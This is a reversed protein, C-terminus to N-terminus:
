RRRRSSLFRMFWAVFVPWILLLIVTKPKMEPFPWWKMIDRRQDLQKRRENVTIQEVLGLRKELSNVEQQMNLLAMRLKENVTDTSTSTTREGTHPRSSDIRKPRATIHNTSRLSSHAPQTYISASAADAKSDYNDEEALPPCSALLDVKKEKSVGPLSYTTSVVDSSDMYEESDTDSDRLSPTGIHSETSPEAQGMSVIDPTAHMTDATTNTHPPQAKKDLSSINEKSSHKPLHGNCLTQSQSENMGLSTPSSLTSDTPLTEEPVVKIMKQFEDLEKVLYSVEDTQPVMEVIQTLEAVYGRMADESSMTGLSSWADWKAKGVVDWFGPRPATCAGKTAQKYFAYFKLMMEHSPKFSGDKPLGQIVKVAAAFQRSTKTDDM